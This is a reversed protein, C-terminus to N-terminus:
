HLENLVRNTLDPRHIFWPQPGLILQGNQEFSPNELGDHIGKQLDRLLDDPCKALGFGFETYNPVIMAAYVTQYYGEHRAGSDELEAVQQLRNQM